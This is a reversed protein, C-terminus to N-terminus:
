ILLILTIIADRIFYIGSNYTLRFLLNDNNTIEINPFFYYTILFPNGPMLFSLKVRAFLLFINLNYLNNKIM